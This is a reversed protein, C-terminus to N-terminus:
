ERKCNACVFSCLKVKIVISMVAFMIVCVAPMHVIVRRRHRVAALQVFVCLPAVFLVCCFDRTNVIFQGALHYRLVSVAV